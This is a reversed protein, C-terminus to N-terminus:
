GEGSPAALQKELDAIRRDRDALEAALRDLVDDVEDMRYGRFGLSFRLRDVDEGTMPRPPLLAGDRDPPADALADGHGAAVIAIGVVVALAALLIVFPM